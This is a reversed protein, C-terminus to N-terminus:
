GVFHLLVELVGLLLIAASFGYLFLATRENRKALKETADTLKVISSRVSDMSDNMLKTSVNIADMAKVEAEMMRQVEGQLDRVAKAESEKMVKLSERLEDVPEPKVEKVVVKQSREEGLLQEGLPTMWVRTWKQWGVMKDSDVFKQGKAKDLDPSAVGLDTLQALTMTGGHSELQELLKRVPEELLAARM